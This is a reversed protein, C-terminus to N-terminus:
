PGIGFGGHAQQSVEALDTVTDRRYFFWGQDVAGKQAQEWQWWDVWGGARELVQYVLPLYM